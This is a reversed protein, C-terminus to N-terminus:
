AAGARAPRVAGALYDLSALDATPVDADLLMRVIAPQVGNRRIRYSKVAGGVRRRHVEGAAGDAKRRLRGTLLQCVGISGFPWYVLEPPDDPSPDQGVTM